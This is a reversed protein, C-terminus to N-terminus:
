LTNFNLSKKWDDKAVKQHKVAVYIQPVRDTQKPVRLEIELEHLREDSFPRIHIEVLIFYLTWM